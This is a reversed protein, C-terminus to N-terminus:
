DEKDENKKENIIGFPIHVLPINHLSEDLHKIQDDIFLHPKLVELIRKKEIGGLFFMEDVEVEWSRLTNIAREHSPANRATVIATRLVKKYLNDKQALKNERKQFFSIKSFFKHMLGPELPDESHKVEHAHFENIDNNVQFIKKLKMM